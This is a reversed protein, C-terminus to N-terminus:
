GEFMSGIFDHELVRIAGITLFAPTDGAWGSIVEGSDIGVAVLGTLSGAKALELMEELARVVSSNKGFHVRVINDNM